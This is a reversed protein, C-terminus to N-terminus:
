IAPRVRGLLRRRTKEEAGPVPEDDLHTCIAYVCDFSTWGNPRRTGSIEVRGERHDITKVLHLMTEDGVKVAVVDGVTIRDVDVPAITVVTGSPIVPEM